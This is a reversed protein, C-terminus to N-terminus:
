NKKESFSDYVPMPCINRIHVAKSKETVCAKKLWTRLRPPLPTFRGM